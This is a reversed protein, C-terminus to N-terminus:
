KKIQGQTALVGQAEKRAEVCEGLLEKKRWPICPKKLDITHNTLPKQQIILIQKHIYKNWFKIDDISDIDVMGYRTLSYYQSILFDRIGKNTKFQIVGHLHLRPGNVSKCRPESLEINFYYDIDDSQFMFFQEYFKDSFLKIRKLQGFYQWQDTPAITIAYDHGKNLFNDCSKKIPKKETKM